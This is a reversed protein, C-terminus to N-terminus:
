ERLEQAYALLAAGALTPQLGGAQRQLLRAGYARELRRLAMTVGTRSMSLERAAAAMSRREVITTFVDLNATSMWALTVCTHVGRGPPDQAGRPSHSCQRAM